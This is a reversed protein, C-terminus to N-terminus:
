EDKMKMEANEKQMEEYDSICDKVYSSPHKIQKLLEYVEKYIWVEGIVESICWENTDFEDCYFDIIKDCQPCVKSSFFDGEYVGAYRVLEEGKEIISGCCDCTHEKRTKKILHHSFFDSM